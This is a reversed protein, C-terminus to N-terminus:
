NEYDYSGLAQIGFERKEFDTPSKELGSSLVKCLNNLTLKTGKTLM